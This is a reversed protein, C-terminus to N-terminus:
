HLKTQIIKVTYLTHIVIYITMASIYKKSYHDFFSSLWQGRWLWMLCCGTRSRSRNKSGMTGEAWREGQERDVSTRQPGLLIGSGGQLTGDNKKM